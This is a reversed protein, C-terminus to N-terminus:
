RRQRFRKFLEFWLVGAAGATISIVFDAVSLTAFRFLDRLVPVSLTLGLVVLTGSTVWWLAPNPARLMSFGSRVWSRNTFILALNSVVLTTFTLARAQNEDLNRYLAFGFLLLAVLLVGAGQILSLALM